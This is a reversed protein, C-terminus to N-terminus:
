CGAADLWVDGRLRVFGEVEDIEEKERQGEVEDEVCAALADEVEREDGAREDEADTAFDNLAEQGVAAVPIGVINECINQATEKRYCHCVPEM